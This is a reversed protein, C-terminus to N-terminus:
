KKKRRSKKKLPKNVQKSLLKKIDLLTKNMQGLEKKRERNIVYNVINFVVYILLAWGLVELVAMFNSIKDFIEAPLTQTLTENIVM